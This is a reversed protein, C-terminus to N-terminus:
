KERAPPEGVDFLLYLLETEEQNLHMDRAVYAANDKGDIRGMYYRSRLYNYKFTRCFDIKAIPLQKERIIKIDFCIGSEWLPECKVSHCEAFNFFAPLSEIHM